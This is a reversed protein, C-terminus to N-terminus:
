FLSQSKFNSVFDHLRFILFSFDVVKVFTVLYLHSYLFSMVIFFQSALAKFKTFEKKANFKFDLDLTEDSYSVM